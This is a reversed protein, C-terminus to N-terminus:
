HQQQYLIKVNFLSLQSKSSRNSNLVELDVFWCFLIHFSSCTYSVPLFFSKSWSEPAYAGLHQDFYVVFVSCRFMFLISRSTWIKHWTWKLIKPNQWQTGTTVYALCLTWTKCSIVYRWNPHYRVGKRGETVGKHGLEWVRAYCLGGRRERVENCYM